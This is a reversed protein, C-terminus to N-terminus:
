QPRDMQLVVAKTTFVQLVAAVLYWTLTRPPNHPVKDQLLGRKSWRLSLTSITTASWVKVTHQRRRSLYLIVTTTITWTPLARSEVTIAKYYYRHTKFILLYQCTQLYSNHCINNSNSNSLRNSFRYNSFSSNSSSNNSSDLSDLRHNPCLDMRTSYLLHVEGLLLALHLPVM